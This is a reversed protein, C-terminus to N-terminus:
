KVLANMRYALLDDFLGSLNPHRGFVFPAFPSGFLYRLQKVVHLHQHDRGVQRQFVDVLFKSSLATRANGGM